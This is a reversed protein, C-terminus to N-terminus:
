SETFFEVIERPQRRRNRDIGDKPVLCDTTAAAAASSVSTIHRSTSQEAATFRDLSALRPSLLVSCAYQVHTQRCFTPSSPPPMPTTSSPLSLPPAHHSLCFLSADGTSRRRPSDTVTRGGHTTLNVDVSCSRGRLM